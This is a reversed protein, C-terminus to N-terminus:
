AVIENTLKDTFQVPSFNGSLHVTGSMLALQSTAKETQCTRGASVSDRLWRFGINRAANYDANLASGCSSCEFTKGSRNSQTCCDCELMSCSKSTDQPRVKVVTIGYEALKYSVLEVINKFMWQQYKPMNSMRERIGELKEFAIHTAKVRLAELVISNAVRHEYEKYCASERTSVTTNLRTHSSHTGAQQLEKRLREFQTCEHNLEDANGYFGGASTVATHGKVNLDVGLVRVTDKDPADSVQESSRYFWCEDPVRKKVTLHLYFTKDDYVLTSTTPTWDDHLVYEEYPTNEISAPTRYYMTHRGNITSIECKHKYFSGAKTDITMTWHSDTSSNWEPKNVRKGDQWKTKLSKMVNAVDKFAKQVLNAHLDTRSKYKDYLNGEIHQKSTKLERPHKPTTWCYDTTQELVHAYKEYTQRLDDEHQKTTQLPLILTRHTESM